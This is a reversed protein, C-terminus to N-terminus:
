FLYRSSIPHSDILTYVGAVRTAYLLTELHKASDNLVVYVLTRDGCTYTHVYCVSSPRSGWAPVAGLCVTCSASYLLVASRSRLFRGHLDRTRDHRRKMDRDM